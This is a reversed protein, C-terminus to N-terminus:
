EQAHAICWDLFDLIESHSSSDNFDMIIRPIMFTGSYLSRPLLPGHVNKYEYFLDVMEQNVTFFMLQNERINKDRKGIFFVIAGMLCRCTVDPSWLLYTSVQTRNIRAYAKRTFHEPNTLYKRADILDQKIIM